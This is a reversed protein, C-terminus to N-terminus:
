FTQKHRHMQAKSGYHKTLIGFEHEDRNDSLYEAVIWGEERNGNEDAFGKEHKIKSYKNIKIIEDPEKDYYSPYECLLEEISLKNNETTMDTAM